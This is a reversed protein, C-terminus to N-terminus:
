AVAMAPQPRGYRRRWHDRSEKRDCDRCYHQHGDPSSTRLHFAALPKVLKCRRCVKQGPGTTYFGVDDVVLRGRVLLRELQEGLQIRPGLQYRLEDEAIWGGMRHLLTVLQDDDLKGFPRGLPM